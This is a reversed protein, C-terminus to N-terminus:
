IFKPSAKLFKVDLPGIFKAKVGRGNEITVGILYGSTARKKALCFCWPATHLAKVQSLKNFAELFQEENFNKPDIVYDLTAKGPYKSAATEWCAKVEFRRGVDDVLDPKRLEEKTLPRGLGAHTNNAYRLKYKPGYSSLVAEEVYYGDNVFVACHKLAMDLDKQNDLPQKNEYLKRVRQKGAEDLGYAESYKYFNCATRALKLNKSRNNEFSELYEILDPYPIDEDWGWVGPLEKCFDLVFNEKTYGNITKKQLYL